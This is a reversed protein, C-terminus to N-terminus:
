WRAAIFLAFWRRSDSIVTPTWPLCPSACRVTGRSPQDLPLQGPSHHSAEAQTRSALPVPSLTEPGCVVPAPHRVLKEAETCPLLDTCGEADWQTFWEAGQVIGYSVPCRLFSSLEEIAEAGVCISLARIRQSSSVYPARASLRILEGALVQRLLASEVEPTCLELNRKYGLLADITTITNHCGLIVCRIGSPRLTAECVERGQPGSNRM